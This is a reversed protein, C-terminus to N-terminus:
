STPGDLVEIVDAPVEALMLRAAEAHHGRWMARQVPDLNRAFECQQVMYAVHERLEPSGLPYPPGIKNGLHDFTDGGVTYTGGTPQSVEGEIVEGTETDTAEIIQDASPLQDKRQRIHDAHETLKGMIEGTM